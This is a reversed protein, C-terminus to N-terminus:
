RTTSLILHSLQQNDGEFKVYLPGNVYETVDAKHWSRTSKGSAGTRWNVRDRSILVRWENAMHAGVEMSLEASKVPPLDFKYTWNGNFRISPSGGSGNNEILYKHETFTNGFFEIVPGNSITVPMDIPAISKGDAYGRIRLISETPKYSAPINFTLKINKSKGPEVKQKVPSSKFIGTSANIESLATKNSGNHITISITHPKGREIYLKATDPQLKVSMWVDKRFKDSPKPASRVVPKEIKGSGIIFVPEPGVQVETKGSINEESGDIRRVTRWDGDPLKLTGTSKDSMWSALVPKNDVKFMFCRAIGQHQSRIYEASKLNSTVYRYADFSPKRTGDDRLLGHGPGGWDKMSFWFTKTVNCEPLTLSTILCQALLRAQVQETIGADGTSWGFETLWIEKHGDGNKVMLKHLDILLSRFWEDNFTDGWQYPHVAMIDFYCKCGNGYISEMFPLDIGATGGFVVKCSPDAKKAAIYGSKLMDSYQEPTGKLFEINPENWVEWYKINGKYRSVMQYIFNSWDNLDNPPYAMEGNPGSSAWKATYGFIPLLNLNEKVAWKDVEADANTWNFKGREGEIANWDLSTASAGCRIWGIGTDAVGEWPCIIGFPSDPKRINDAFSSIAGMTILALISICISKM